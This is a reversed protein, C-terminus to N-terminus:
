SGGIRKAGAGGEAEGRRCESQNLGVQTFMFVKTRKIKFGGGECKRRTILSGTSTEGTDEADQVGPNRRRKDISLRKGYGSNKIMGMNDKKFVDKKLGGSEDLM